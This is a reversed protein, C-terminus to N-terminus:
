SPYHKQCVWKMVWLNPDDLDAFAHCGLRNGLIKRAEDGTLSGSAKLGAQVKWYAKLMQERRNGGVCDWSMCGPQEGPELEKNGVRVVRSDRSVFTTLPENHERPESRERPESHERPGLTYEEGLIEILQQAFWRKKAM